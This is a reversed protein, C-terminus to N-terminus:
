TTVKGPVVKLEEKNFILGNLKNEMFNKIFEPSGTSCGVIILGNFPTCSAIINQHIARIIDWVVCYAWLAFQAFCRRVCWFLWLWEVFNLLFNIPIGM